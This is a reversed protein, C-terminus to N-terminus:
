KLLITEILKIAIYYHWERIPHNLKNALLETTDIGIKDMQEWVSYLDCFRINNNVCLEIAQKFYTKLVGNNQVNSAFNDAINLFLDEKLHNSVKTNMYNQTLFIVDVDGSKLNDFIQQLANLYEDLGEEGKVSDNLGYAVIVLDPNYSLIDRNLRLLGLPASDGSIGSNIINVQVAPYLINLMERMRTSFASKYDFVTELTTPSTLYCEFCGQTVSDGLFAITIPKNNMLNDQKNKLYDAIKM